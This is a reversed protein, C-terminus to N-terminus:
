FSASRNKRHSEIREKLAAEKVRTRGIQQPFIFSKQKSKDKTRIIHNAKAPTIKGKKEGAGMKQTSNAADQRRSLKKKKIEKENTKNQAVGDKKRGEQHSCEGNVPEAM